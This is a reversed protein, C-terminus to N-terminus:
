GESNLATLSTKVTVNVCLERFGCLTFSSVFFSKTSNFTCVVCPVFLSVFTIYFINGVRNKVGIPVMCLTISTGTPLPCREKAVVVLVAWSKGLVSDQKWPFLVLKNSFNRSFYIRSEPPCRHQRFKTFVQSELIM